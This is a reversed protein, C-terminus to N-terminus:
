DVWVGPSLLLACDAPTAPKEAWHTPSSAPRLVVGDGFKEIRSAPDQPQVILAGEGAQRRESRCRLAPTNIATLECLSETSCAPSSSRTSSASVCCLRCGLAPLEAQRCAPGCVHRKCRVRVFICLFTTQLVDGAQKQYQQVQRVLAQQQEPTMPQENLKFSRHADWTTYGVM